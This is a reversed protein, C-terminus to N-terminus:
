EWEATWKVNIKKYLQRTHGEVQVWTWQFAKSDDSYSLLCKFSEAHPSRSGTKWLTSTFYRTLLHYYGLAILSSFTVIQYTIDLSWSWTLDSKVDKNTIYCLSCFSSSIIYGLSIFRDFTKEKYGGRGETFLCSKYFFFFNPLM